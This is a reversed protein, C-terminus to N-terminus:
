KILVLEKYDELEDITYLNLLENIRNMSGEDFYISRNTIKSLNSIISLPGDSLFETLLWQLNPNLVDM